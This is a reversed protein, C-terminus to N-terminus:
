LDCKHSLSICLRSVSESVVQVEYKIIDNNTYINRLYQQNHQIVNINYKISYLPNHVVLSQTQNASQLGGAM